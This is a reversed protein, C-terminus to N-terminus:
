IHLFAGKRSHNLEEDFFEKYWSSKGRDAKLDKKFKSAAYLLFFPMLICVLAFALACSTSVGEWFSSFNVKEMKSITITSALGIELLGEIYFRFVVEKINLESKTRRTLWNDRCNRTSFKALM